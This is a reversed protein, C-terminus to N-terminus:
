AILEKIINQVAFSNFSRMAAEQTLKTASKM